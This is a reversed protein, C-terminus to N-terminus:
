LVCPFPPNMIKVEKNKIAPCRPIAIVVADVTNEIKVVPDVIIVIIIARDVTKVLPTSAM